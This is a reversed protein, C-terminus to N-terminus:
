EAGSLRAIPHILPSLDGGLESEWEAGDRADEFAASADGPGTVEIELDVGRIHWELQVTGRATPIVAPAPTSQRVIQRLLDVAANVAAPAIRRGGYSDWNEPLALLNHLAAETDALWEPATAGATIASAGGINAHPYTSAM